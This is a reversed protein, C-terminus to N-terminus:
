PRNAILTHLVVRGSTIGGGPWTVTVTIDKLNPYYGAGSQYHAIEIVGQSGPPLSDSRFAVRGTGDANQEIIQYGDAPDFIEPDVTCGAFGASRLRELEKLALNRALNMRKSKSASVSGAVFLGAIGVLGISLITIVVLLEILTFGRERRKM